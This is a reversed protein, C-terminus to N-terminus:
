PEDTSRGCPELLNVMRMCRWARIRVSTRKLTLKMVHNKCIIIYPIHLQTRPRRRVIQEAPEDDHHVAAIDHIGLSLNESISIIASGARLLLTLLLARAHLLKSVQTCIKKNM